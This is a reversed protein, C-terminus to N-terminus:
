PLFYLLFSFHFYALFSHIFPFYSRLSSPPFFSCLYFILFFSLFCLSICCICFRCLVRKTKTDKRPMYFSVCGCSELTYNAWCETKCNNLTYTKFYRLYKEHPFYCMRVKPDYKKVVSSTTVMSPQVAVAVYEDLPVLIHDENFLPYREPIHFSVKFGQLYGSCKYDIESDYTTITVLLSDRTGALLSRYPYSALSENDTYGGTDMWGQATKNVNQFKEYLYVEKRFMENRDLLNFGYCIGEDTIIETFLESCHFDVNLWKCETNELFNPKVEFLTQYLDTANEILTVNSYNTEFEADCVQSAYEYVKM